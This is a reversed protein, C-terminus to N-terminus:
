RPTHAWVTGDITLTVPGTDPLHHHTIQTFTCVITDLREVSRGHVSQRPTTHEDLVTGASDTRVVHWQFATPVLVSTTGVIHVAARDPSTQLMTIAFDHGNSCALNVTITNPNHPGALAPAALSPAAALTLALTAATTLVTRPTTM